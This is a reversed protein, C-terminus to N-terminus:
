NILKWGAERSVTFRYFGSKLTRTEFGFSGGRSFVVEVNGESQQIVFSQDPKLTVQKGDVSLTVPLATEKPNTIKFKRVKAAVGNTSNSGTSLSIDKVPELAGSIVGDADSTAVDASKAVADNANPMVVSDMGDVKETKPTPTPKIDSPAPGFDDFADIGQIKSKPTVLALDLDSPGAKKATSSPPMGLSVSSRATSATSNTEKSANDFFDSLDDSVQKSGANLDVTTALDHLDADSPSDTSRFKTAAAFSSDAQGDFETGFVDGPAEVSQKTSVFSETSRQVPSQVTTDDDWSFDGAASVSATKDAVSESANVNVPRRSSYKNVEESSGGSFLGEGFVFVGATAAVAVLAPVLLSSNM